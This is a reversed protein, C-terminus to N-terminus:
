LWLDKANKFISLLNNKDHHPLLKDTMKNSKSSDIFVIKSTISKQLSTRKSLSIKNNYKCTNIYMCIHVM